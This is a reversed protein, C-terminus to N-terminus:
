APLQAVVLDTLTDLSTFADFDLTDMDLKTSMEEDVFSIVMMMTFSDIDLEEDAANITVENMEEIMGKLKATIELRDM